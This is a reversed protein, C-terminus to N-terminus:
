CSSTAKVSADPPFVGFLSPSASADFPKCLRRVNLNILMSVRAGAAGFFPLGFPNSKLGGSGAGSGTASDTGVDGEDVASGGKFTIRFVVVPLLPLETPCRGDPALVTPWICFVSVQGPAFLAPAYLMPLAGDSGTAGLFTLLGHPEHPFSINGVHRLRPGSTSLSGDSSEPLTRLMSDVREPADAKPRTLLKVLRRRGQNERM